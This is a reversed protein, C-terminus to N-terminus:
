LRGRLTLYWMQDNVEYRSFREEIDQYWERPQGTLNTVSLDVSYGKLGLGDLKYGIKAELQGYAKSIQAGGAQTLNDFYASRWNYALRADFPGKEFSTIINYSNKSFDQMGVVTGTSSRNFLSNDTYTYNTQLTIGNWPEPLQDFPKTFALEVGKVTSEGANVQGVLRYNIVPNYDPNPEANTPFDLYQINNAPMLPDGQLDYNKFDGPCETADAYLGSDMDRGNGPLPSSCRFRFGQEIADKYAKNFVALSAIGGSEPYYEISVDFATVVEPKLYPNGLNGAQEYFRLTGIPAMAFMGPRGMAKSAALRLLTKNDAMPFTINFSPLLNTYSNNVQDLALGNGSDSFASALLDTKVYRLGIDGFFEGTLLGSGSFAGDFNVKLYAASTDEEIDYGWGPDATFPTGGITQMEDGMNMVWEADLTVYDIDFNGSAGDLVDDYPQGIIRSDGCSRTNIDWYGQPCLREDISDGSASTLMLGALDGDESSNLTDRSRARSRRSERTAFRVGFEVQNFASWEFDYDFDLKLEQAENGETQPQYTIGNMKFQSSDMPNIRNDDTLEFQRTHHTIDPLDNGTSFDFRTYPLQSFGYTVTAYLQNQIQEAEAMSFAANMVLRDSIQTENRLAFGKTESEFPQRRPQIYIGAGRDLSGNGRVNGVIAKLLTQSDSIDGYYDSQGDAPRFDRAIQRGNLGANHMYGIDSRFSEAWDLDLIWDSGGATEYQLTLKVASNERDQKNTLLQINRPIFIGDNLNVIQGQENEEFPTNVGDGNFDYDTAALGETNAHLNGTNVPIWGRIFM